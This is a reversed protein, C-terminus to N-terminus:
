LRLAADSPPGQLGWVYCVYLNEREAELCRLADAQDAGVLRPAQSEALALYYDIMDQFVSKYTDGDATWFYDTHDDNAIYLRRQQAQATFSVFLLAIAILAPEM